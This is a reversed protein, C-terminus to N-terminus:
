PKTTISDAHSSPFFNEFRPAYPRYYMQHNVRRRVMQISDARMSTGPRFTGSLFGFIRKATHLSDTQLRLETWGDVYFNDQRYEVTGNDYEVGIMWKSGHDANFFKGRWVYEDGRQWNEDADFTFTITNSPLRGNFTLYRPAPWIDVSDGSVSLADASAARSGSEALRAELIEITEDYVKMYEEINRGYWGFSSDLEASTAGHRALVSQRMAMKMSDSYYDSPNMSIYAESTHLDAMIRAMRHPEIVGSPVKSCAVALLALSLALLTKQLNKM